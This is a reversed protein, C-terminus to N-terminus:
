QALVERVIDESIPTTWGSAADGCMEGIRRPLAFYLDDGRRKKDHRMAALLDDARAEAPLAVPLNFRELLRVIGAGTGREAVGVREALASEIAMGIAIAEGHLMAYGNTAEVAHGITHGFNLVARRGGEREDAAVVAAKIEVSRTVLRELAAADRQKSMVADRDRELVTCYDADAIVGHKIAEAM